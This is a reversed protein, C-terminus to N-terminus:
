EELETEIIIKDGPKMMCLWDYIQTQLSLKLIEIAEFKRETILRGGKPAFRVRHVGTM